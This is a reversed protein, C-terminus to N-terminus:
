AGVAVRQFLKACFPNLVPDAGGPEHQIRARQLGKFSSIDPQKGVQFSRTLQSQGDANRGAAQCLRPSCPRAASRERSQELMRAGDDLYVFSGGFLYALEQGVTAEWFTFLWIDHVGVNREDCARGLAEDPRAIWVVHQAILHVRVEDAPNSNRTLKVRRRSNTM